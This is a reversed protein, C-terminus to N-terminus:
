YRVKAFGQGQKKCIGAHKEEDSILRELDEIFEARDKADPLLEEVVRANTNRM